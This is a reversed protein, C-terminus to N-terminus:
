ASSKLFDELAQVTNLSYRHCKRDIRRMLGSLVAGAGVEIVTEVGSDILAQMSETWRVAQTLQQNLETRIDAVSGLARASVNGVLRAGPRQFDAAAVAQSFEAAASAMLPSHAAVSVALKVRRRAGAAKALAIAEDIASEDGSIVVQGPCNDNALVVTKGTQRRVTACLSRVTEAPLGLLAAMAGPTQQGAQQMLEGRARVLRLGHEFSLAGAATLASFEGLSHGAMCTPACAPALQRLVRWIAVSCVYLAPQTYLTQNLREAPGQWCISSLAYGLAEDAQAFTQRALEFQEAFDKGMGIVQSGQGPFLAATRAWDIM